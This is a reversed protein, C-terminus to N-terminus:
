RGMALGTRRAIAATRRQEAILLLRQHTAPDLEKRATLFYLSEVSPVEAIADSHPSEGRIPAHRPIGTADRLQAKRHAVRQHFPALFARLRSLEDHEPCPRGDHHRPTRLLKANAESLADGVEFWIATIVAHDTIAELDDANIERGLTKSRFAM